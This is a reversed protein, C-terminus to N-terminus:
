IIKQNFIILSKVKEEFYYSNLSLKNNNRYYKLSIFIIESHVESLVMSLGRVFLTNGM